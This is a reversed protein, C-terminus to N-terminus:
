KVPVISTIAPVKAVVPEMAGECCNFSSVKWEWGITFQQGLLEPSSAMSDDFFKITGLTNDGDGFDLYKGDTTEFGLHFYDGLEAGQYTAVVPNPVTSWEEKLQNLHNQLSENQVEKALVSLADDMEMPAIRLSDGKSLQEGSSQCSFTSVLIVLVFVPLKIYKM